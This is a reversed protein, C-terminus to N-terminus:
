TRARTARGLPAIEEARYILLHFMCSLWTGQRREFPFYHSTGLPHYSKPTTSAMTISSMTYDRLLATSHSVFTYCFEGFQITMSLLNYLPKYTYTFAYTFIVVLLRHLLHNNQGKFSDRIRPVIVAPKASSIISFAYSDNIFYGFTPPISITAELNLYRM